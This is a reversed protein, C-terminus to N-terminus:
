RIAMARAQPCRSSCVFAEIKNQNIKQILSKNKKNDELDFDHPLVTIQLNPFQSILVQKARTAIGQKGGFLGVRWKKKEALECLKIMLDAGTVRELKNGVVQPKRKMAWVVGVGDPIALDAKNLAKKFAM